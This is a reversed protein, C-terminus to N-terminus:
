KGFTNKLFLVPVCTPCWVPKEKFCSKKESTILGPKMENIKKTGFNQQENQKVTLGELSFLVYFFFSVLLLIHEM